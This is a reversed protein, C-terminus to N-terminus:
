LPRNGLHTELFTRLGDRYLNGSTLFGGNHDGRIPLFQKPENAAAYLQEGHHYPIIEDDQSHVILVPSRIASMTARTDYRIRALLRVPFLRYHEAGFDPVSTFTSELILARPPHRSALNAAVAAGLSRGFVVIERASIGRTETLYRWAAQADRYTGQESPKGSSEGYGRYDFIFVSLGLEHFLRISDLRHSINGANGHHFLLTAQANEVPIWWGSLQEGDDTGFNISEFAMGYQAPSMTLARSPMNPYYVMGEQSFYLMLGFVLYFAIILAAIYGLASMAHHRM